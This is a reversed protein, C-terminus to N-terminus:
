AVIADALTVWSSSGTWSFGVGLNTQTSSVVQYEDATAASGHLSNDLLTFSGGSSIGSPGGSLGVMGVILDNSNATTVSVTSSTGASTSSATVASGFNSDFPSATNAGSISVVQGNIGHSNGPAKFTVVDSSLTGSSIAYWCEMEGGSGSSVTGRVIWSLGATDSISFTLGTSETYECAYILDNSNTTSITVTTSTSGTGGHNIGHSSSNPDLGFFFVALVFTGSSTSHTSDGGYSATITQSGSGVSTPKYTVSCTATAGSGSLSCTTSSFTGSGSASFTVTGTPTTPSGSTDKVTATCTTVANVYVTSPSCSVSTTTTHAVVLTTSSPGSSTHDTDGPYSASITISGSSVSPTFTVSCAGSSLTCTTSSFSGQGTPSATFTITGTAALTAGGGNSVTATCTSPSNPNDPNPSCVVSTTTTIKTVTLTVGASPGSSTHDTDGAYSATITVSGEKGASPTYTVTCTGGSTTCQGSAPSFAGSTTPSASFTVTGGTPTVVTGSTTDTVTATCTSPATVPLTTPSCSITISSARKTASVTGAGTSTMHLSDGGYSGTVTISGEKGPSPTFQTTCTATSGSGSLTCSAPSFSGSGSPTTTFSVTGTPTTPSSSTDTVTVTCTSVTNVPTSAPSCSVSTTTSRLVTLTTSGSSTYHWDDGGYSATMAVPGLTGSYPTYTVSCSGGSLTCTTSSFTGLSLAQGGFTVTGIPSNFSGSDTDTVTATCTSPSGAGVASPSCTVSTATSRLYAQGEFPMLQSYTTGKYEFAVVIGLVMGEPVTLNPPNGTCGNSNDFSAADRQGGWAWNSAGYGCAAFTLIVTQGPNVYICKNDTPKNQGNVTTCDTPYPTLTPTSAGYNPYYVGNTMTTNTGALFYYVEGSIDPDGFTYSYQTIPVTTNFVNTIEMYFATYFNSGGALYSGSPLNNISSPPMPVITTCPSQYNNGTDQTCSSYKLFFFNSAFAGQTTVSALGGIEISNSLAEASQVSVGSITATAHGSFAALGGTHGTVANFQCTVTGSSGPGITQTSPTCSSYPSVSATGSVFDSYPTHLTISVGTASVTALNYVTATVTICGTECAFTQTCTGSGGPCVASASLLVSLQPGGGVLVQQVQSIQDLVTVQNNYPIKPAPFQATFVNGRSTLLSVVVYEGVGISACAICSLASIGIDGGQYKTSSGVGLTIPLTVNLDTPGKLFNSNSLVGLHRSIVQGSQYTGCLSTSLTGICTIYADVISVPIGGTNNVRVGLVQGLIHSQKVTVLLKEQSAQVGANANSANAQNAL